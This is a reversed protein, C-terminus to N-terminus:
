SKRETKTSKTSIKGLATLDKTKNWYHTSFQGKFTLSKSGQRCVDLDAPGLKHLLAVRQGQGTVGGSEIVGRIFQVPELVAQFQGVAPTKVEAFVYTM